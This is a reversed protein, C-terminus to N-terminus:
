NQVRNSNSFGIFHAQFVKNNKNINFLFIPFDIQIFNVVTVETPKFAFSKIQNNEQYRKIYVIYANPLFKNIFSDRSIVDSMKKEEKKTYPIKM